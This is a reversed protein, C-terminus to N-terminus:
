VDMVVPVVTPKKGFREELFRRLRVRIEEELDEYSKPESSNPPDFDAVTKTVVRRGETLLAEEEEPRVLGRAVLDPGSVIKRREKDRVLMVFVVGIEGLRRRERLIDRTVERGARDEVFVRTDELQDIKKLGDRDLELIDGNSTVLVTEAAMGCERALDGHLVLHRFEGHIPVFYRPKVAKLMRELEPRTAHGSVHVHHAHGYLVHAGQRFLSNIMRSIDKENGPIARASLIVQDGETLKVSKHEGAAIRSLTARHEGQCGTALVVVDERPYDTVDEVDILVNRAAKLYGNPSEQAHDINTAMSRGTVAVHKGLKDAIDMLQGVRSISSSFMSVVTMGKAQEVARELADYIVDEGPNAIHREVNTSDSLLVDVGEAGLEEFPKLDLPKGYFPAPDIKFDGTHLVRGAPCDLVLAVSEVISHNVPLARVSFHKLKFSANLNFVRIESRDLLGYERLRERVLRSTFDTAYIPARIGAMMAFPLAGIHDEHGHTLIFASIKDYRERLYDFKPIVFEIGFHDLDSFQLGCDVVIVEDDYELAMCNMGIEGLGGLAVIRLSKM